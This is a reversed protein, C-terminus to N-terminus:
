GKKTTIFARHVALPFRPQWPFWQTYFAISFLEFSKRWVQEENSMKVDFIVTKRAKELFEFKIYHGGSTTTTAMAMAVFHADM